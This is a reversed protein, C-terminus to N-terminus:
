SALGLLHVYIPTIGFKSTVLKYINLEFIKNQKNKWVM